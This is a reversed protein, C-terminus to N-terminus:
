LDSERHSRDTMPGVQARHSHRVLLVTPFSSFDLPKSIWLAVMLILVGLALSLTLGMDLLWTPVPLFLVSLVLVIAFAFLM